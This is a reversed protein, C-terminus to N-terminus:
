QDSNASQRRLAKRTVETRMTTWGYDITDELTKRQTDPLSGDAARYEMESLLEELSRWDHAETMVEITDHCAKIYDNMAALSNRYREMESSHLERRLTNEDTLQVGNAIQTQLYMIRHLMADRVFDERSRYDPVQSVIDAIMAEMNPTIKVRIQEYHGKSDTSATYYKDLNYQSAGTLQFM